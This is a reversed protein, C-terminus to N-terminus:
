QVQRRADRFDEDLEILVKVGRTKELLPSLCPREHQVYQGNHRGPITYFVSFLVRVPPRTNAKLSDLTPPGFM